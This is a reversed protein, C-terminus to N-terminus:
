TNNMLTLIDYKMRDTKYNQQILLDAQNQISINKNTTENSAITQLMTGQDITVNDLSSPKNQSKIVNNVNIVPILSKMSNPKDQSLASPLPESAFNSKSFGLIMIFFLTTKKMTNM